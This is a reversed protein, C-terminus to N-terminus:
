EDAADSTYLLCTGYESYDLKKQGLEAEGIYDLAYSEQQIYTFKRYLSLYDFITVGYIEKAEPQEGETPRGFFRDKVLGFPSLENVAETSLVRKIRNCVYPIDFTEINWGTIIDPDLDKWLRIFKHLLDAESACKVYIDDGSTKYDGCGLIYSQGNCRVAISLIDMNATQINPFGEDSRTEIDFNLINLDNFNFDRTPYEENIYAYAFQQM